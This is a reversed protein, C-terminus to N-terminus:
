VPPTPSFSVYVIFTIHPSWLAALVAQGPIWQPVKERHPVKVNHAQDKSIHFLIRASFGYKHMLFM